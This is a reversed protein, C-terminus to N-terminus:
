QSQATEYQLNTVINAYNTGGNPGNQSNDITWMNVGNQVTLLPKLTKVHGDAFLYNSQNTHRAWLFGNGPPPSALWGWGAAWTATSDILVTDGDDQGVQASGVNISSTEFVAICSSPDQIKGLTQGPSKGPGFIGNGPHLEPGYEAYGTEDGIGNANGSYDSLITNGAYANEAFQSNTNSPCSFVGTSKIYPQILYQWDIWTTATSDISLLPPYVEDFDQVYQTLALGIQKENSACSTQRAKERVKAFVPFLIAALIAIIAIV